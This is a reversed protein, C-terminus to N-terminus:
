PIEQQRLGRRMNGLESYVDINSLTHSNSDEQLFAFVSSSFKKHFFEREEANLENVTVIRPTKM